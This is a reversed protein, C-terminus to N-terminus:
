GFKSEQRTLMVRQITAASSLLLSLCMAVTTVISSALAMAIIATVAACAALSYSLKDVFSKSSIKKKANMMTSIHVDDMIMSAEAMEVSLPMIALRLRRRDTNIFLRLSVLLLSCETSNAADIAELNFFVADAVFNEV